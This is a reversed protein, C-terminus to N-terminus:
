GTVGYMPSRNLGRAVFGGLKKGSEAFGLQCRNLLHLAQEETKCSAFVTSGTGSMAPKPWREIVSDPEQAITDLLTLAQDVEPHRDRVVAECVNEGAGALFDRITIPSCNRTLDPAAFVSQTSVAVAPCLVVFWTEPLELETFQEGVGEAWCAHGHVFVPVDAGLSLGLRALMAHDANLGWLQNLAVLATAANSSGGGLGGGVPIRKERSISVGFQDAKGSEAQLLRAARVVLDSEPEVGPLPHNLAIVGDDRPEFTLTDAFDLFQFVTQLLHYGDDRRSTIHLFLNLKAPSSWQRASVPTVSM